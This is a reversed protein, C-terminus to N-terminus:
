FLENIFDKLGLFFTNGQDNQRPTSFAILVHIHVVAHPRPYYRAIEKETKEQYKDILNQISQEDVLDPDFEENSATTTTTTGLGKVTDTPDEPASQISTSTAPSTDVIPDPLVKKPVSTTAFGRAVPKLQTRKKKPM